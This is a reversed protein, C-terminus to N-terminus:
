LLKVDDDNLKKETLVIARSGSCKSQHFKAHVCIKVVELLRNVILTM